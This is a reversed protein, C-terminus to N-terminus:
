GIVAPWDGATVGLTCGQGRPSAPVPNQRISSNERQHSGGSAPRVRLVEPRNAATFRRCTTTTLKETHDGATLQGCKDLIFGRGEVEFAGRRGRTCSFSRSRHTHKSLIHARGCSHTAEQLLRTTTTKHPQHQQLSRRILAARFVFAPPVSSSMSDCAVLGFTPWNFVIFALLLCADTPLSVTSM